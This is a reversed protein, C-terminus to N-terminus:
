ALSKPPKGINKSPKGLPTVDIARGVKNKIASGYSDGMGIQTNPAHWNKNVKTKKM